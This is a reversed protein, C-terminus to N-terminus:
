VIRYSNRDVQWDLDPCKLAPSSFSYMGLYINGDDMEKGEEEEGEKKKGGRNTNAQIDLRQCSLEAACRGQHSM